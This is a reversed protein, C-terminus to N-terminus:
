PIHFAGKIAQMSELNFCSHVLSDTTLRDLHATCKMFKTLLQKTTAPNTPMGTAAGKSRCLRRGDRTVVTVVAGEPHDQENFGLSAVSERGIMTVCNMAGALREDFIVQPRLQQVGVEGFALVCGVAFPLCFQAETPSQPRDYRLSIHVLPTVECIVREVDDGSIDNETLIEATAEVAAQAASCLPYMKFAVGPATLAFRQGVQEIPDRNFVGGNFVAAFGNEAEIAGEPGVVGARACLAADVGSQAARGCLYPKATTGLVARLGFAHSAALRIAHATAVADLRFARAAGAAAGITGLVATSWWGRWYLSDTLAQGLAYEAEVGCIFAALLESGSCNEREGAALVSPWVVASGHVIGAYSTDDFDLAHAAVANAMAAGIASSQGTGGLLTCPGDGYEARAHERALSAIQERSGALSVGLTDVICRKASEVVEMPIRDLEVGSVWTGLAGAISQM